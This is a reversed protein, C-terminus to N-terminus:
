TNSTDTNSEHKRRENEEHEQHLKELLYTGDVSTLLKFYHSKFFRKVEGLVLAPPKEGYGRGNLANRYDTAAQVVIANALEQYDFTVPTQM